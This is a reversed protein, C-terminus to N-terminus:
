LWLLFDFICPDNRMMVIVTAESPIMAENRWPAGRANTRAAKVEPLKTLLVAALVRETLANALVFLRLTFDCLLV